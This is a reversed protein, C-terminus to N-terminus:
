RVPFRGDEWDKEVRDLYSLYRNIAQQNEQPLNLFRVGLQWSKGEEDPRCWMIEGEVQMPQMRHLDFDLTLRLIDGEAQSAETQLRIGTSSIDLAIAKYVRLDPSMVQFSRERREAVRLERGGPATKKKRQQVPDVEHFMRQLLYLVNEPCDPMLGVCDTGGDERPTATIIEVTFQALVPQHVRDHRVSVKVNFKTGLTEARDSVFSLENGQCDTLSLKRADADVSLQARGLLFRQLRKLLQKM